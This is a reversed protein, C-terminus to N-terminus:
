KSVGRPVHLSMLILAGGKIDIFQHPTNEPVIFFDGKAVAQSVGGEIGTGSLNEANTRKENVIKGGTVLTGGGDVVYFVEAEKEHTAATGAIPRYELSVRYPALQLIPQAVLAQGEKHIKKANAIMEQVEASSAFTKMAAPQQAVMTGAIAILLGIIKM